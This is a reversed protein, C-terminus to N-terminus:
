ASPSVLGQAKDKFFGAEFGVLIENGWSWIGHNAPWGGFRGAEQYVVINKVHRPQEAASLACVAFAIAIRSKM